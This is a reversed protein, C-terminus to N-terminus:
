EKVHRHVFGLMLLYVASNFVFVSRISFGAMTGALLPGAAGGLMSTSSLFAFGEGRNQQPISDSAAGLTLSLIGGAAIALAVRLISFLAASHVFVMPILVLVSLFLRFSLLRGLKVRRALKGSLWASFAEGFAAGSVILGSLTILRTEPTGLAQLHLPIIPAFTRDAMSVSFMILVTTLFEPRRWFQARKGKHPEELHKTRPGDRYLLLVSLIAGMMVVGTVFFTPRIGIRAALIGGIFPGIAASLIQVAQQTGVLQMTKERPASQTILATSVSNFGGLLGLAIRLALLEYVNRAFGMSFWILANFITARQAMVRMGVRDGMRGWLPGALAAVLPSASILAGSWFAVGEDSQVGLQRVYIPLFPFVLTYGFFIFAGSVTIAIQNKRWQELHAIRALPGGRGTM